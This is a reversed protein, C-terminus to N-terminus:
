AFSCVDDYIELDRATIHERTYTFVPLAMLPELLPTRPHSIPTQLAVDVRPVCGGNRAAGRSRVERIEIAM